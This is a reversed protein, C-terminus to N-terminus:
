AFSSSTRRLSAKWVSKCVRWVFLFLLILCQKPFECILEIGSYLTKKCLKEECFLRLIKSTCNAGACIIWECRSISTKNEVRFFEGKGNAWLMFSCIPARARIGQSIGQWRQSFDALSYRWEWWKILCRSLLWALVGSMHTSGRPYIVDPHRLKNEFYFFLLQGM